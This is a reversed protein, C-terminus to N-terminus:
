VCGGQGRPPLSVLRDLNRNMVTTRVGVCDTPCASTDLWSPSSPQGDPGTERGGALPPDANFVGQSGPVRTPGLWLLAQVVLQAPRGAWGMVRPSAHQFCVQRRGFKLIRSHGDTLYSVDVPVANTLGLGNAAVLGNPMIRVGDGGPWPMLRRKWIWQSRGDWCHASCRSTTSAMGWEVFAVPGPWARCPKTLPRGVELTWSTTRPAYGGHTPNNRYGRCSETPWGGHSQSRSM